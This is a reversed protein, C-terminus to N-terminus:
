QYQIKLSNLFQQFSEYYENPNESQLAGQIVVIQAEALSAVPSFDESYYGVPREHATALNIYILRCNPGDLAAITHWKESAREKFHPEYLKPNFLADDPSLSFRDLTFESYNKADVYWPKDKIKLDAIEFLVDSVSEVEIDVAGLLATIAEEGIVGALV